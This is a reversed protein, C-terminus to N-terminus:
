INIQKLVISLLEKPIIFKQKKYNTYKTYEYIKGKRSEFGAEDLGYGVSL